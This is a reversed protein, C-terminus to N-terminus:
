DSLLMTSGLTTSPPPPFSVLKVEGRPCGGACEDAGARVEYIEGVPFIAASGVPQELAAVRQTPMLSVLEPV